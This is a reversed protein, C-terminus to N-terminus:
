DENGNNNEGHGNLNPSNKARGNVSKGCRQELESEIWDLIQRYELKGVNDPLWRGKANKDHIEKRRRRLEDLLNSFENETKKSHWEYVSGRRNVLRHEIVGRQQLRQLVYHVGSSDEIGTAKLVYERLEPGRFQAHAACFKIISQEIPSTPNDKKVPVAPKTMVKVRARIQEATTTEFDITAAVERQQEPPLPALERAQAENKPTVGIPTLNQVVQAAEIQRNAHGKSWQWRERCYDDFSKHTGRYLREERIRLLAQGVEVFPALGREIVAECDALAEQDVPYEAETHQVEMSSTEMVQYLNRGVVEYSIVGLNRLCRLVRDATGPATGGTKRAVFEHLEAVRFREHDRCFEIVAQSTRSSPRKQNKDIDM